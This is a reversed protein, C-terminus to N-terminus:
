RFCPWGTGPDLAASVALDNDVLVQVRQGGEGFSALPRYRERVFEAVLPFAADFGQNYADPHVLVFPVVEDRLKRLAARQHAESEFYGEVFGAAGGAFGRHTLVLVEWLEGALLLRHDPRTCRDVYDYFPLLTAAIRSPIQKEHRPAHLRDATAPIFETLPTWRVLLGANDLNERTNGITVISVAAVVLLAASVPRWLMRRSRWACAMLWAGLTVAPVIADPLRTNLPSRVFASTVLLAVVVIPALRAVLERRDASRWGAILVLTAGVPLAWYEFVLAAQHPEDGLVSLWQAPQRELERSRFELGNQLYQWLGGHIEVYALYPATLLAVAGIFALVRRGASRDNGPRVLWVALAGAVGLYIGHDHRFLFGVAVVAALAWLRGLTPRTVYRQMLLFAAAYVLLKPYGYPRPVIAIELLAAIAALVASGTLHRVSVATLAAALAFGLSVVVAEALLPPGLLWQATASLVYMLPLGPDLFDRTPWEGFLMQQAGAIYLFHDNPFGNSLMQFRFVATFAFIGAVTGAFAVARARSSRTAEARAPVLSM